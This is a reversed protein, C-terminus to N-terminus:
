YNESIQFSGDISAAELMEQPVQKIAALFIIMPSGFQWVRLIILTWVATKPNAVWSITSDIGLAQLGQNLIGNMGFIQRWLISIAVSGGLLSPVYFAARFWSLGKM